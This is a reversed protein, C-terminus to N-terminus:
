QTVKNPRMSELDTFKVIDTDLDTKLFLLRAGHQTLHHRDRYLLKQDKRTVCIGQECFPTLADFFRLTPYRQSLQEVYSRYATRKRQIYDLTETTKIEANEGAGLWEAIPPRQINLRPDTDFEPNDVIFVVTKGARTLTSVIREMIEEFPNDVEKIRGQHYAIFVMKIESHKLLFDLNNWNTDTTRVFPGGLQLLNGGRQEIAPSLGDFFHNAHSDGFLAHTIPGDNSIRCYGIYIQEQMHKKCAEDAILEKTWQLDQWSNGTLRGPWGKNARTWDGLAGITVLLLLGGIPFFPSKLPKWAGHRLPTEIYRYTIWAAIISLILLIWIMAITPHDFLIRAFSFLPWHWLYLPYSILGITVPLRASLIRQSFTGKNEGLIVLMAGVVPVMARWGPYPADGSFFLYSLSILLIGCPALLAPNVIQLLSRHLTHAHTALIAGAILEWARTHPLFFSEVPQTPTLALNCALSIAGLTLLLPKGYQSIRSALLILWPWAIYFQEEVALSWLHLLPKLDAHTDFYGAQSILLFNNSFYASRILSKGLERFESPTMLAYGALWTTILVLLLAPFIRKIRRSYFRSITFGQAHCERNVIGTILFGSIVFFVDVGAFGGPLWSPFAHFIVVGIVAIARLGDIEPRYIPSHSASQM